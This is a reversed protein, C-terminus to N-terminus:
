SAPSSGSRARGAPRLASCWSSWTAKGGWTQARDGTPQLGRALVTDMSGSEYIMRACGRDLSALLALLELLRRSYAELAPFVPPAPSRLWHPPPLAGPAAEAGHQVAFLRRQISALSLAAASVERYASRCKTGYLVGLTAVGRSVGKAAAVPALGPLQDEEDAGGDLSVPCGCASLAAALPARLDALDQQARHLADAESALAALARASDEDTEIPPFDASPAATVTCELRGFRSYGCENCLFGDLCEYNINRCQRCQHANEHCYGCIGHRSRVLHSCRPCQITESSAEQLNVHFADLRVMVATASVPLPLSRKLLAQGPALGASLVERWLGASQKLEALEAVPASCVHLSVRAISRSRRLDSVQLAFAKISHRGSLRVAISSATFKSEARLADLRTTSYAASAPPADPSVMPPLAIGALQAADALGAAGELFHGEFETLGRLAAYAATHPHDSLAAWSSGLSCALAECMPRASPPLADGAADRRCERLTWGVLDFFQSALEGYPQLRPVWSLLASLVRHQQAPQMCRWALLLANAAEARVTSSGPRVLFATVFSALPVSAWEGSGPEPDGLSALLWGLEPCPLPPEPNDAAQRPAGSSPLALGLLKLAAVMHPEEWAACAAALWPMIDAQAACLGRWCKPRLEAVELLSLLCSLLRCSARYDSQSEALKCALSRIQGLRHQLLYGSRTDRYSSHGGCLVLLVRRTHKRQHALTPAVLAVCLCRRWAAEDVPRWEGHASGHVASSWLVLASEAAGAAPWGLASAQSAVLREDPLFPSLEDPANGRRGSGGPAGCCSGAGRRWGLALSGMCMARPRLVGVRPRRTVAAQDRATM